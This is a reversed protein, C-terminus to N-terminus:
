ANLAVGDVADLTRVHRRMLTVGDLKVLMGLRTLRRVMHAEMAARMMSVVGDAVLVGPALPDATAALAARVMRAVEARTAAPMARKAGTRYRRARLRSLTGSHYHRPKRVKGDTPGAAEKEKKGAAAAAVVGPKKEKKAKAGAPKATDKKSPAAAITSM